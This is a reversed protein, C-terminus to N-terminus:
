ISIYLYFVCEKVVLRENINLFDDITNMVQFFITKHDVKM